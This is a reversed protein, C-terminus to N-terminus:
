GEFRYEIEAIRGAESRRGTQRFGEREYLRIAKHNNELVTLRPAGFCKGMAFRLLKTGFGQGQKEPLVYLDEIQDGTVCVVACPAEERLIFARSGNDLKNKLYEARNEPTRLSIFQESCFGRHSEQWSASLVRAAEGLNASDVPVISM